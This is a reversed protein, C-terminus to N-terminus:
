FEVVTRTGTEANDDLWRKMQELVVLLEEEYIKSQSPTACLFQDTKGDVLHEVRLEFQEDRDDVRATAPRRDVLKTKLLGRGRIIQKEEHTFAVTVHVEYYIKKFLLGKRITHHDISVRM